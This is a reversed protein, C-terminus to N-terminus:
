LWPRAVTEPDYVRGQAHCIVHYANDGVRLLEVSADYDGARFWGVYAAALEGCSGYGRSELIRADNLVVMTDFDDPKWAVDFPSRALGRRYITANVNALEEIKGLLMREDKPSALTCNAPQGALRICMRVTM